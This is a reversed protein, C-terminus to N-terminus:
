GRGLYRGNTKKKQGVWFEYSSLGAFFGCIVSVTSCFIAITKFWRILIDPLQLPESSMIWGPIWRGLFSKLIGFDVVPVKSPLGGLFAIAGFTSLFVLSFIILFVFIGIFFGETEKEAKRYEEVM